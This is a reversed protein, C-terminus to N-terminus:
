AKKLETENKENMFQRAIISLRELHGVPIADYYEPFADYALQAAAMLDALTMSNGGDGQWSGVLEPKNCNLWSAGGNVSRFCGLDPMALFVYNSDAPHVAIDFTIINDVGTSQWGGAQPRTHLPAFSRGDDLTAYVFQDDVWLLM